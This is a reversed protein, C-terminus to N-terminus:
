VANCFFDHHGYLIQHRVLLPVALTSVDAVSTKQLTPLPHPPLSPVSKNVFTEKREGVM